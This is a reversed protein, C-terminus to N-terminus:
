SMERFTVVIVVVRRGQGRTSARSATVAMAQAAGSAPGSLVALAAGSRAGLWASRLDFEALLETRADASRLSLRASLSLRSASLCGLRSLLM